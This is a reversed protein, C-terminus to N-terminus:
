SQRRKIFAFWGLVTALIMFGFTTLLNSNSNGAKPLTGTAQGGNVSTANSNTRVNGNATNGASSNGSATKGGSSPLKTPQKGTTTGPTTGNTTVPKPTPKNTTSGPLKGPTLDTGLNPTDGPKVTDDPSTPTPVQTGNDPTGDGNEGGTSSDGTNGNTSKASYVFKYSRGNNDGFTLQTKALDDDRLWEYDTIDRSAAASMNSGYLEVFDYGDINKPTLDLIATLDGDEFTETGLDAGTDKDVRYITFTKANTPIARYRYVIEQPGGTLTGTVNGSVYEPAGYGAIEPAAPAEYPDTILGEYTWPTVSMNTNDTIIEQGNQDIYKHSVTGSIKWADNGHFANIANGNMNDVFKHATVLAADVNTPRVIGDSKTREFANDAIQLSPNLDDVTIHNLNLSGDYAGKSFALSGISALSPLSTLSVTELAGCTYFMYTPLATLLPLNDLVVTKLSSCYSFAYSDISQLYELNSLNLNTLQTKSFASSGITTLAPLSNFDFSALKTSLFAQSGITKLSPLTGFTVSQLKSCDRFAETDITVLSTLSSFDLHTLAGDNEFAYAGITQLKTLNDFNVEALATCSRFATPMITVLNILPSLDLSKLATCGSFATDGITTLQTLNTFDIATLSTNEEFASKGISQLKILPSLDLNTLAYSYQFAYTGISTLNTLNSFNINQMTKNSAFAHDDITELNALPSLDLSSLNNAGFASAGINKINPLNTFDIVTITKYSFASAGIATIDSLDAPFSLVGDWNKYDGSLFTNSFGTITSGDFTFDTRAFTHSVTGRPTKSKVPASALTDASTTIPNQKSAAPKAPQEAPQQVPTVDSIDTTTSETVVPTIDAAPLEDPSALTPVSEDEVTTGNEAVETREAAVEEALVLPASGLGSVLMITALSAYIWQKGHKYMKYHQKNEKEM